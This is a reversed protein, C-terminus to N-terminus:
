VLPNPSAPWYRQVEHGTSSRAPFTPRCRALRPRQFDDWSVPPDRGISTRNTSCFEASSAPMPTSPLASCSAAPKPKALCSTWIRPRTTAPTFPDIPTSPLLQPNTPIPPVPTINPDPALMMPPGAPNGYIPQPGYGPVARDNARPTNHLLRTSRRHPCHKSPLRRGLLRARRPRRFKRNPSRLKSYPTRRRQRPQRIRVPRASPKAATRRNVM